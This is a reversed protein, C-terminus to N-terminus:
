KGRKGAAERKLHDPSELIAMINASRVNYMPNGDRDWEGDFRTVEVVDVRLRLTSGDKLVIRIPPDYLNVIDIVECEVVKGTTPSPLKRQAM